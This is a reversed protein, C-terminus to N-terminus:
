IGKFHEDILPHAKDRASISSVPAPWPINLIPDDFRLGGEVGPTYFATHHYILESNEEQSQFGHAFGEPIYIMKKNTASLEVATWQLFTPSNERIDVVVDSVAGAICRVLKVEKHPPLQFHLGRITGKGITFSHNMQVWESHHGIAEFEKKCFTRAFWGREDSYPELTLVFCGPLRTEEFIM